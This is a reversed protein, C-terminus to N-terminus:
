AAKARFAQFAEAADSYCPRNGGRDNQAAAADYGSKYHDARFRAPAEDCGFGVWSGYGALFSLMSDPLENPEFSVGCERCLLSLDELTKAGNDEHEDHCGCDPCFASHVLVSLLSRDLKM